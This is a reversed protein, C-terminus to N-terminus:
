VVRDDQNRDLGLRTRKGKGFRLELRLFHWRKPWWAPPKWMEGRAKSPESWEPERPWWEMPLVVTAPYWLWGLAHFQEVHGLEHAVIFAERDTGVIRSDLWITSGFTCATAPAGPSSVLFVPDLYATLRVPTVEVGIEWHSVAVDTGGIWLAMLFSLVSMLWGM